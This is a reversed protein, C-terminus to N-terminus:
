SLPAGAGISELFADIRARLAAEPVAGVSWDVMQGNHFLGVTPISTVTYRAATVPNAETDLKFFRVRGDYRAALAKFTPALIKCPACWAAWFDVVAPLDSRLVLREFDGDSVHKLNTGEAAPDVPKVGYKREFLEEASPGAEIERRIRELAELTPAYRTAGMPCGHTCVGLCSGCRATDVVVQGLGRDYRVAGKPCVRAAGCYPSSDCLRHDILIPM